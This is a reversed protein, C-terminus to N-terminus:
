RAMKPQPAYGPNIPEQYKKIMHDKQSNYKTKWWKIVIFGKSFNGMRKDSDIYIADTFVQNIGTRSPVRAFLM